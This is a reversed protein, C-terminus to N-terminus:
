GQRREYATVCNALLMAITMPGVGGPVPTLAGAVTAARAFNVDGTLRGDVRHIGVDIVVAGPKIWTDDVLHAKGAAVVLIDAQRCIDEPSKTKSHVVSVTANEHLLLMAVPLGVLVSRGIVVANKGSIPCGSARILEIIGLPTCPRLGPLNWALLGQNEPVLGDVDKASCVKHVVRERSIHAPLPLQILIGDISQDKNLRDILEIIAEEGSAAPLRFATSVIGVDSCAKEKHAVYVQSAPDDGVLIVALCPAREGRAKFASVRDRLQARIQGAIAKGDILKM